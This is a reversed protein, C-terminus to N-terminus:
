EHVSARPDSWPVTASGKSSDALTTWHSGVGLNLAHEPAHEGRVDSGTVAVDQLTSSARLDKATPPNHSDTRQRAATM